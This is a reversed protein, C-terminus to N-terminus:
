LKKKRTLINKENKEIQNLINTYYKISDEFEENNKLFEAYDFTEYVGKLPLRNYTEKLLKIAQKEKEEKVLIRSIQKNSFWKFASGYKELSEYIKKSNVLDDINYFNEAM